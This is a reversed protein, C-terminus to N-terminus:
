IEQIDECLGLMVKKGSQDNVKDLEEGLYVNLLM